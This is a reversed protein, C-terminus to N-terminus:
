HLRRQPFPAWQKLLTPVDAVKGQVQKELLSLRGISTEAPQLAHPPLAPLAFPNEETFMPANEAMNATISPAPPASASPMRPAQEFPFPGSLGVAGGPTGSPGVPQGSPPPTAAANKVEYQDYKERVTFETAM